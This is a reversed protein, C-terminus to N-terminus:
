EELDDRHRKFSEEQKEYLNKYQRFLEEIDSQIRSNDKVAPLNLLINKLLENQDRLGSNLIAFMEINDFLDQMIKSYKSFTKSVLRRFPDSEKESLDRFANNIDKLQEKKRIISSRFDNLATGAPM